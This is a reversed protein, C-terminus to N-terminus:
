KYNPHSPRLGSYYMLCRIWFLYDREESCYKLLFKIHTLCFDKKKYFLYDQKCKDM